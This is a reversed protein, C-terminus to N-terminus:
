FALLWFNLFISWQVNVKELKEEMLDHREQALKAQDQLARIQATHSSRELEQQSRLELCRQSETHLANRLQAAEIQADEVKTSLQNRSSEFQSCRQVLDDM